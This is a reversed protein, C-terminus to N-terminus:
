VVSGGAYATTAYAPASAFQQFQQQQYQPAYATTAPAAYQVPAAQAYATTAPAAYQQLQQPQYQPAYATTAPAAYQQVFQQQQQYQPAVMSYSPILTSSTALPMMPPLLPAVVMEPAAPAPAPAAAPVAKKKTKKVKKKGGVLKCIAGIILSFLSIILVWHWARLYLGSSGSAAFGSSDASGSLDSASSAGADSLGSSLSGLSKSTDIALSDSSSASSDWATVTTTFSIPALTTAAQASAALVAVLAVIRMM